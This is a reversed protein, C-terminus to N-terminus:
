CLGAADFAADYVNGHLKRLRASEEALERHMRSAVAKLTAATGM